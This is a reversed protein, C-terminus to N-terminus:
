ESNNVSNGSNKDFRTRFVSLIIITPSKLIWTSLVSSLRLTANIEIISEIPKPWHTCWGVWQQLWVSSRTNDYPTLISFRVTSGHLGIRDSWLNIVKLKEHDSDLGRIFFLNEIHRGSLATALNLSIIGIVNLGTNDTSVVLLNKLFGLEVSISSRTSLETLDNHNVNPEIAGRFFFCTLCLLNAGHYLKFVCSKFCTDLFSYLFHLELWRTSYRRSQFFLTLAYLFASWM